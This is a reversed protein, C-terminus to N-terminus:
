ENGDDAPVPPQDKAALVELHIADFRYLVWLNHGVIRRVHARGPHFTTVFDPRGPLV